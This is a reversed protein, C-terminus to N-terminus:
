DSCCFSREEKKALEEDSKPAAACILHKKVLCAKCLFLCYIHLPNRM